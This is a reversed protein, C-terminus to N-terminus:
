GGDLVRVPDHGYVRLAWLLRAAMFIANDDYAVVESTDGVGTASM